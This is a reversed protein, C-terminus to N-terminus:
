PDFKNCISFKNCITIPSVLMRAIEAISSQFGDSLDDLTRQIAIKLPGWCELRNYKKSKSHFYVWVKAEMLEPHQSFLAADGYIVAKLVLPLEKCFIHYRFGAAIEQFLNAGSVYCHVHLSMEEKVKKWEAVVDDRQLTTQWSRLQESSISNSVVLTLNATLDCHTLTYARPITCLPQKNIEEGMFEVKLKSAEFTTPPGLLRAAQLALFDAKVERQCALASLSKAFDETELPDIDICVLKEGCRRCTGDEDMESRGVCCQGKGLRGQGLWDGGGKVVGEKVRGVEAAAESGFPGSMVEATSDSVQRVIGRTRHLVRYVDDGRGKGADVRLLAALEPERPVVGTTAMHSEVEHANDFDGADYFGFLAPGYSRLKPPIGSASMRKILDFALAPDRKLAALRAASTFTAENPEVADLTMKRFIEFGRDVGSGDESSSCLYLLANYHHLSLNVSTAVATDYLRLAEPLDGRKSCMNLEHRLLGEPSERWAKRRARATPPPTSPNELTLTQTSRSSPSSPMTRRFPKSSPRKAFRRLSLLPNTSFRRRVYYSNYHPSFLFLSKSLFSSSTTARFLSPSLALPM